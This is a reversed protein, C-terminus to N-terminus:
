ALRRRLQARARALQRRVSGDSVGLLRAIADPALDEWYTLYIVARQQASLGKLATMVRPDPASSEPDGPRDRASTVWERYHRRREGRLHMAAHMVVARLAYAAPDDATGWRGSRMLDLVVASVVDAAASPGVTVAALGMMRRSLLRYLEEEREWVMVADNGGVGAAPSM